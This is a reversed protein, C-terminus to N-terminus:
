DQCFSPAQVTIGEEVPAARSLGKQTARGPPRIGRPPRDLVVNDRTGQEDLVGVARYHIGIRVSFVPRTSHIRKFHLSPHYADSLFLTYADKAQRKAESPLTSYHRWFQDTTTSTM